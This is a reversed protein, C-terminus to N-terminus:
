SCLPSALPDHAGTVVAVEGPGGGHTVTLSGEVDRPLWYGAFGNAYM